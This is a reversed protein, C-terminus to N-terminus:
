ALGVITERARVFPVLTPVYTKVPFADYLCSEAVTKGDPTMMQLAPAAICRNLAFEKAVIFGDYVRRLGKDRWGQWACGRYHISM